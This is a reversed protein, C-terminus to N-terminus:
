AKREKDYSGMTWHAIYSSISGLNANKLRSDEYVDCNDLGANKCEIVIDRIESSPLANLLGDDSPVMRKKSTKPTGTVPPAKENLRYIKNLLCSLDGREEDNLNCLKDYPILIYSEARDELEGFSLNERRNSSCRGNRRTIHAKYAAVSRPSIELIESIQNVDTIGRGILSRVEEIM